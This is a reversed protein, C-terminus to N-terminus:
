GRCEIVLRGEEETLEPASVRARERSARRISAANDGDSVRTSRYM